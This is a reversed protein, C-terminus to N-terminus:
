FHDQTDGLLRQIYAIQGSHYATHEGFGRFLVKQATWTEGWAMSCPQEFSQLRDIAEQTERLTKHILEQVAQATAYREKFQQTARKDMAPTKEGRLLPTMSYFALAVHWAIEQASSATPEPKWTWKDAPVTMVLKIFEDAVDNIFSKALAKLEKSM